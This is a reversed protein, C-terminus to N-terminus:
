SAKQGSHLVRCQRRAVLHMCGYTWLVAVAGAAIALAAGFPAHETWMWQSAGVFVCTTLLSSVLVPLMVDTALLAASENRSFGVARSASRIDEDFAILLRASVYALYLAGLFLGALLWMVVDHPPWFEIAHLQNAAEISFSNTYILSEVDQLTSNDAGLITLYGSTLNVDGLRYYETTINRGPSRCDTEVREVNADPLVIPSHAQGDISNLIVNVEGSVSSPEVTKGCMRVVGLPDSLSMWASNNLPEVLVPVRDQTSLDNLANRLSAGDADQEPIIAFTTVSMSTGYNSAKRAEFYAALFWFSATVVIVVGATISAALLAKPRLSRSTSYAVRLLNDYM